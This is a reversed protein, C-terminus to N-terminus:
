AAWHRKISESDLTETIFEYRSRTVISHACDLWVATHASALIIQRQDTAKLFVKKFNQIMLPTLLEENMDILLHQNSVLLGKLLGITFKEWVEAESTLRDPNRILNLLSHWEQPVTQSFENWSNGGTAIQLNEWLSLNPLLSSNAEVYAFSVCSKPSQSRLLQLLDKLVQQEKHDKQYIALGWPKVLDMVQGMPAPAPSRLFNM